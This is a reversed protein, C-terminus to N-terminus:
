LPRRGIGTAAALATVASMANMHLPKVTQREDNHSGSAEGRSARCTSSAPASAPRVGLARPWCAKYARGPRRGPSARRARRPHPRLDGEALLEAAQGASGTRRLLYALLARRARRLAGDPRHLRDGLNRRPNWASVLINRGSVPIVNYNHVTCIESGQARPIMFSSLTEGTAVDHFWARGVRSSPDPCGAGFGGEFEDGFIAV